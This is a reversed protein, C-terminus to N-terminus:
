IQDARAILELNVIFERLLPRDFQGQRELMWAIADSQKWARKYPRTSTIAEYVDCISSIRVPLSIEDGALGNPYGKGDLREHHHLCVDLVVDPMDGGNSLIAHGLAPHNRMLQLESDTLKGEKSLIDDPVNMKGIDHLLGCMGLLEITETDLKLYRAFQAMLASVSISHLFTTEDKSKLRSVSLFVRPDRRMTDSIQEVVPRAQAVTVSAGARADKFLDEVVAESQAIMHSVVKKREDFSPSAARARAANRVKAVPASTAAVDIGMTTNIIVGTIKSRKLAALQEDTELLFRRTAFPNDNWAGELDEIFM